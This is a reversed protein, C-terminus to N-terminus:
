FDMEYDYVEEIDVKLFTMIRLFVQRRGENILMENIDASHTTKTASCFVRLDALVEKQIEGNFTQRYALELDKLPDIGSKVSKRVM